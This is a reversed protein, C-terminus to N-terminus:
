LALPIITIQVAKIVEFLLQLFLVLSHIDHNFYIKQTATLSKYYESIIKNGELGTQYLVEAM